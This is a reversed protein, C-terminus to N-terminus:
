GNVVERKALLQESLDKAQEIDFLQYYAPSTKKICECRFGNERLECAASSVACIDAGRIIEMTSRERGDLMLMLFRQLRESNQYMAYHITGEKHGM